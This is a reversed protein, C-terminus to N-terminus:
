YLGFELSRWLRLWEGFLSSSDLPGSGTSPAEPDPGLHVDQMLIEMVKRADSRRYFVRYKTSHEEDVDQAGRGVVEIDAHGLIKFTPQMSVILVIAAVLM